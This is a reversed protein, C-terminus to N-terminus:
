VEKKNLGNLFRQKDVICRTHNAIGVIKGNDTVVATFNIKNKVVQLIRTACKVKAGIKSAAVHKCNIDIGVSVEGQELYPMIAQSCTQEILAIMSPTAFVDVLGSGVKIASMEPTITITQEFMLGPKIEM